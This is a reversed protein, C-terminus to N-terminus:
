HAAHSGGEISAFGLGKIARELEKIPHTIEGGRLQCALVVAVMVPPNQEQFISKMLASVSAHKKIEDSDVLLEVAGRLASASFFDEGAPHAIEKGGEFRLCYRVLLCYEDGRDAMTKKTSVIMDAYESIGKSANVFNEKLVDIVLYDDNEEESRVSNKDKM